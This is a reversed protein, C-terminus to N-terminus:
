TKWLRLARIRRAVRRISLLALSPQPRLARPPIRGALSTGNPLKRGCHQSPDHPPSPVSAPLPPLSSTIPLPTPTTIPTPNPVPLATVVSVQQQQKDGEKVVTRSRPPQKRSLRRALIQAENRLYELQDESPSSASQLPSTSLIFSSPPPLTTPALFPSSVTSPVTSPTVSAGRNRRAGRRRQRVGSSVRQSSTSDLEPEAEMDQQLFIQQQTAGADEEEAVSAADFTEDDVQDDRPRITVDGGGDDEEAYDFQHQADRLVHDSSRPKELAPMSDGATAVAAGLPGAGFMAPLGKVWEGLDGASVRGGRDGSHGDVGPEELGLAGPSVWFVKNALFEAVHRTMGPCRQLLFPVPRSLYEEFAPDSLCPDQWLNHHYLM